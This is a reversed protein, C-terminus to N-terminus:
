SEQLVLGRGILMQLGAELFDASDHPRELPALATALEDASLARDLALWIVAAAGMVDLCEGRVRRVLVRDSARRWLVDDARRYRGTANTNRM